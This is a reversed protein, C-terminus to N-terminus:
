PAAGIYESKIVSSRLCCSAKLVPIELATGSQTCSTESAFPARSEFNSWIILAKAAYIQQSKRITSRLSSSWLDTRRKAPTPCLLTSCVLGSWVLGSWVLGSWVLGSWVLGSWVLGSWVLGSWGVVFSRQGVESGDRSCFGYRTSASPGLFHRENRM